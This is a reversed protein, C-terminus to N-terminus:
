NAIVDVIENIIHLMKNENDYLPDYSAITLSAVAIQKRFYKITTILDEKTLGNDVSYANARVISPDLVDVDLHIHM